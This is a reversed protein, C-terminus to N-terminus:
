RRPKTVTMPKRADCEPALMVVAEAPLRWAPHWELPIAGEGGYHAADSSWVTRWASGGCPALLPEPAIDLVLAPGLNVILLRDGAEASFFRLVFAEPGLVAGEIMRDRASLVADNRRLQLIDRHFRYTASHQSREAFDLKCSEFTRLAGPDALAAQIEPKAISPFQLLFEARGKRVATALEGAHDAFYLFPSSAGFEQGQFLLPTQPGLLLLATMARYRGPSSLSHMRKGSASNAVQDHNELFHVFAKAGLGFTPTGRGQKQWKYHQGQYLYGWKIASIFEQPKGADDTYYAENNGTLAVVAAHHFDDNLLADAGYGGTETAQVLRVEQPENECLVFSERAGSSQRVQRTVAAVIHEPSADYLQQTADLRLGDLHFEEIWYRTNAVFYQRVETANEGDFNIPDGWDNKYRDTFYDKSFARLYCGDPGFTTSSTSFSASETRTHTISSGASIM